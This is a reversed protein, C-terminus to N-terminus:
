AKRENVDYEAWSYCSYERIPSKRIRTLELLEHAIEM